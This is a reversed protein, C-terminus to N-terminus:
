QNLQAPTLGSPADKFLVERDRAFNAILPLAAGGLARADAGVSGAMIAPDVLGRRDLTEYIEAVRKVLRARVAIPMAGDIIVAEFDIVSIAALCAYALALATEEIWEDLHSSFDDWSDPTRWISSPDVGAERLKQELQYISACHILQRAVLRGNELRIIPVPGLAGATGTRGTFLAGDVVIGGGIFSGLFFYLFDHRRWGDGFFFEAACASSADNCLIVPVPCLAAIESRIDVNRWVDMAGPPAGVEAGWNWLYFPTAIGLGVLRARQRATLGSTLAPLARAVFDLTSRPQPYPFTEHARERIAGVFDTLVLDCSRRGIKLGLSFAGEPDLSLPVTPQGVRGRQPAERRLLGDLQLRNMTASATQVSLGTLRAVEIKSLQRYRRVLSLILRENYLRVGAQDAGTAISFASGSELSQEEAPTM